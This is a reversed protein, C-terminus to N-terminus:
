VIHIITTMGRREYEQGERTEAVIVTFSIIDRPKCTRADMNLHIDLVDFEQEGLSSEDITVAATSSILFRKDKQHWGLKVKSGERGVAKVNIDVIGPKALTYGSTNDVFVGIQFPYGATNEAMKQIGDNMVVDVGKITTSVKAIWENTREVIAHIRDRRRKDEEPPLKYYDVWALYDNCIDKIFQICTVKYDEVSSAKESGEDYPIGDKDLPLM